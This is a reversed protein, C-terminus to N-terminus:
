PFSLIETKRQADAKEGNDFEVDQWLVAVVTVPCCKKDCEKAISSL